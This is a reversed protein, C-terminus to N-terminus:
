ISYQISGSVPKKIHAVSNSSIFLDLHDAQILINIRSILEILKAASQLTPIRPVFVSLNLIFIVLLGGTKKIAM